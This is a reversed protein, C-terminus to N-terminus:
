KVVPLGWSKRDSPRILSVRIRVSVRVGVTIRSLWVLRLGVLWISFGVPGLQLLLVVFRMEVFLGVFSDRRRWIPFARADPVISAM